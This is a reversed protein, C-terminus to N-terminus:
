TLERECEKRSKIVNLVTFLTYSYNNPIPESLFFPLNMVFTMSQYVGMSGM